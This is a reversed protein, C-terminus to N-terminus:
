APASKLPNYQMNTKLVVLAIETEVRLVGPIGSVEQILELSHKQGRVLFGAVLEFDGMVRYLSALERLSLLRGAISPDNFSKAELKIRIAQFGWFGLKQFDLDAVYRLIIGNKELRGTREKITSIPANLCQSLERLSMASNCKIERLIALDLEDIPKRPAPGPANKQAFPVMPNFEEFAKIEEAVYESDMALVHRNKGIEELIGLVSELSKARVMLNLHYPGTPSSALLVEPMEIIGKLDEAKLSDECRLVLRIIASYRYGLKAYDIHTCYGTILGKRELRKIRSAITNINLGSKESIEKYTLRCDSRILSLILSDKEDIKM